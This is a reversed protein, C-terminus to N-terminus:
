VQIRTCFRNLGKRLNRRSKRKRVKEVRAEMAEFLSFIISFFHGERTGNGKVKHVDADSAFFENCKNCMRQVDQCKVTRRLVVVNEVFLIRPKTLFRIQFATIM